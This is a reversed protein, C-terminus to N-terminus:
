TPQNYHIITHITFFANGNAPEEIVLVLEPSQM